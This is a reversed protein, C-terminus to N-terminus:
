RQGIAIITEDEVLQGYEMWADLGGELPRVRTFGREMLARAVPGRLSRETVYLLPHGRPGAAARWNRM